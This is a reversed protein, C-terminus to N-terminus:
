RLLTCNGKLLETNGSLPNTYTLVYAYVGVPAPANNHTGDWGSQAAGSYVVQGLRNYISLHAQMTEKNSAVLAFIDNIGDNNPSFATPLDIKASQKPKTAGKSPLYQGPTYSSTDKPPLYFWLSSDIAAAQPNYPSPSFQTSCDIVKITISDLYSWSCNNGVQVYYTTTQTPCAPPPNATTDAFGPPNSYWLIQTNPLTDRVWVQLNVCYLSDVCLKTTNNTTYAQIQNADEIYIPSLNDLLLGNAQNIISDPIVEIRLHTYTQKPVFSITDRYWFWPLEDGHTQATHLLQDHLCSDTGAWVEYVAEIYNLAPALDCIDVYFFHKKNPLMPCELRQGIAEWDIIGVFTEGHSPGLFWFITDFIDPTLACIHWDDAMYNPDGTFPIGELSPNKIPIYNTPLQWFLLWIYVFM